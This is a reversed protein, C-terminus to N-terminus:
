IERNYQIADRLEQLLRLVTNKDVYYLISRYTTDMVKVNSIVEQDELKLIKDMVKDINALAKDKEM